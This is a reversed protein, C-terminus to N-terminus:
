FPVSKAVTEPMAEPEPAAGSVHPKPLPQIFHVSEAILVLRSHTGEDQQWTDTRLRGHVLVTEGKHKQALAVASKGFTACPVFAREEQWQKSKDQYHHNVALHFSTVQVGSPATRTEPNRVLRGLITTLNIDSM